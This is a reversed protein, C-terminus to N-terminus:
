KSKGITVLIKRKYGLCYINDIHNGWFQTEQQSQHLAAPHIVLLILSAAITKKNKM